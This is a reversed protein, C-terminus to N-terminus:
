ELIKFPIFFTYHDVFITVLRFIMHWYVVNFRFNYITKLWKDGKKKEKKSLWKYGM